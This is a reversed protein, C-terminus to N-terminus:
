GKDLKEPITPLELAPGVFTLLQASVIVLVYLLLISCPLIPEQVRRPLLPCWRIESRLWVFIQCREGDPEQAECSLGWFCVTPIGRRNLRPAQFVFSIHLNWFHGLISYVM